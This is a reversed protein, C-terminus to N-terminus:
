GDLGFRTRVESWREEVEWVQTWRQIYDADLDPGTAMISDIDDRDRPRGALLKQVIVDEITLVNDVARRMAEEHYETSALLLDVKVGKGRVFLLYPEGGPEAMARVEYGEGRLADAVAGFNSVFFDVDTTFRVNGRYRQAALAGALVPRLGLERLHEAFPECYDSPEQM